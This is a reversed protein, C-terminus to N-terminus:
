QSKVLNPAVLRPIFVNERCKIKLDGFYTSGLIYQLPEGRSRRDVWSQLTNDYETEPFRKECGARLWRLENHASQLDGVVPLLKSLFRGDIGHANGLVFSPRLRLMLSSKPLFTAIASLGLPSTTQIARAALEREQCGTFRKLSSEQKVVDTGVAEEVRWV